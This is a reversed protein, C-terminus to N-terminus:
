REPPFSLVFHYGQRGWNEGYLMKTDMMAGYAAEPTSGCKGGALFGGKTKEGDLIYEIANKLHASPNSGKSEKVHMLKTIAM